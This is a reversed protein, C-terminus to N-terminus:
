REQERAVERGREIGGGSAEDRGGDMGRGMGEESTGKMLGGERGEEPYGRSIDREQERAVERGREIGGGSAEDRGGAMCRGTGAESTGKMLGGEGRERGVERGGEARVWEAM